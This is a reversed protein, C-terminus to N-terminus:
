PLDKRDGPKAEDDLIFCARGRPELLLRGEPHGAALAEGGLLSGPQAGPPGPVAAADRGRVGAPDSKPGVLVFDNYMVDRAEIFFGEAVAREEEARDHVLVVDAEGDEGLKLAQAAGVPMVRVKNGYRAEFAPLIARLLGSDATGATTALRIDAAAVSPTAAFLFVLWILFRAM